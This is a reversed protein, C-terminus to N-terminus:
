CWLLQMIHVIMAMAPGSGVYSSHVRAHQWGVIVLALHAMISIISVLRCHQLVLSSSWEWFAEEDSGLGLLPGLMSNRQRILGTLPDGRMIQAYEDRCVLPKMKLIGASSSGAYSSADSSHAM